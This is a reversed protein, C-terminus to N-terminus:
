LCTGCNIDSPYFVTYAPTGTYGGISGGYVSYTVGAYEKCLPTAGGVTQQLTFVPGSYASPGNCPEYDWNELEPPAGTTTPAAPCSSCNTGVYSSGDGGNIAFSPGSALGTLVVCVYPSVQFVSGAVQDVTFRVVGAYGGGSSACYNATYYFYTPGATTTPAATTTTAPTGSYCAAQGSLLGSTSYWVNGGRAYYGNTPTGTGNANNYITIGNATPDNQQNYKV